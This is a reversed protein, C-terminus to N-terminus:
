QCVVESGMVPLKIKWWGNGLAYCSVWRVPLDARAYGLWLGM